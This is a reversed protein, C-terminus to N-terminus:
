PDEQTQLSKGVRNTEFSHKKLFAVKKFFPNNIKRIGATLPLGIFCAPSQQVILWGCLPKVVRLTAGDKVQRPKKAIVFIM